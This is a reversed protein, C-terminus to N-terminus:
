RKKNKMTNQSCKLGGLCQKIGKKSSIKEGPHPPPLEALFLRESLFHVNEMMRIVLIGM